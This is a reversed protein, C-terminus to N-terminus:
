FRSEVRHKRGFSNPKNLNSLETKQTAQSTNDESISSSHHKLRGGAGKVACFSWLHRKFLKKSVNTHNPLITSVRMSFHVCVRFEKSVFCYLIPYAIGSMSTILILVAMLRYYIHMHIDSSCRHFLDPFLDNLSEVVSFPFWCLFHTFALIIIKVIIQLSLFFSLITCSLVLASTSMVKRHKVITQKNQMLSVRLEAMEERNVKSLEYALSLYIALTLLSPISFTFLLRVLTIM